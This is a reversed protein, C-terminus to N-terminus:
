RFTMQVSSVYHRDPPIKDDHETIISQKVRLRIYSAQSVRQYPTVHSTIALATNVIKDAENGPGHVILNAGLLIPIIDGGVCPPSADPATM